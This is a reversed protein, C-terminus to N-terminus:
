PAQLMQRKWRSGRLRGQAAEPQNSCCSKVLMVAASGACCRSSSSSSVWDAVADQGEPAPAPHLAFLADHSCLREARVPADAGAADAFHPMCRLTAPEAGSRPQM